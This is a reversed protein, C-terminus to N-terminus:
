DWRVDGGIDWNGYNDLTQKTTYSTTGTNSGGSIEKLEDNKIVQAINFALTREHQNSKSM